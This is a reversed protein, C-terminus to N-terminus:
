KFRPVSPKGPSITIKPQIYPWVNYGYKTENSRYKLINDREADEVRDAPVDKELVYATFAQEGYENFDLQWLSGGRTQLASSKKKNLFLEQMHQKIRSEVKNSSGIYIRGTNECKIAYISKM